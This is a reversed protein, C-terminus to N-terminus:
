IEKLVRAPNGGIVVNSGFSKTVVAGSAVVVNDGLTVGPNITAHGGIWCNNGIRIPKGFELGSNRQIPDIPHTATYIGVQPAIFCNDGIRVEAVDLIVCGFNAYFNEGVHINLGYDCNFTSEIHISNGTSGLLSKIIEVRKELCSVSTQNLKETLLRAELRLKVLEADSPDYYEGSLMKERESM